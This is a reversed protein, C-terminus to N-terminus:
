DNENEFHTRNRTRIKFVSTSKEVPKFYKDDIYRGTKIVENEFWTFNDLLSLSVSENHKSIYHDQGSKYITAEKLRYVVTFNQKKIDTKYIITESGSSGYKRSGLTHTRTFYVHDDDVFVGEDFPRLNHWEKACIFAVKQDDYYYLAEADSFLLHRANGGPKQLAVLHNIRVKRTGWLRDDVVEPFQLDNVFHKKGDSAYTLQYNAGVAHFDSVNVNPLLKTRYFANRDDKIYDLTENVSTIKEPNAYKVVLNKYYVKNKDKAFKFALVNFGADHKLSQFTAADADPIKLAKYFVSKTDRTYNRGLYVANERNIGSIKEDGSFVNTNDEGTVTGYENEFHMPKFSKVDAGKLEFYGDGPKLAYVKNNYKSLNARPYSVGNLLNEGSDAKALFFVAIGVSTIIIVAIAAIIFVTKKPNVKLGAKSIVFAHTHKDNTNEEYQLQHGTTLVKKLKVLLQDIEPNVIGTFVNGINIQVKKDAEITIGIWKGSRKVFTIRSVDQLSISTKTKGYQVVLGQENFLVTAQKPYFLTLILYTVYMCLFLPPLVIIMISVPGTLFFGFIQFLLDYGKYFYFLTIATAIILCITAYVVTYKKSLVQGDFTIKM